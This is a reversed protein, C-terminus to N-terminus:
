HNRKIDNLSWDYPFFEVTWPETTDVFEFISKDAYTFIFNLAAARAPELQPYEETGYMEIFEDGFWSFLENTTVTNTHPNIKNLKPENVFAIVADNLQASVTQPLLPRDLLPPAGKSANNLAFHIRPDKFEPRLIDHEIENLSVKRGAIDWKKDDFAGKIDKISKVPYHNLITQLAFANYANIWLAMRAAPELSAYTEASTKGLQDIFKDLAKRDKLLAAYDVGDTKVFSGLVTGYSYYFENEAPSKAGSPTDASSCGVVPLVVM